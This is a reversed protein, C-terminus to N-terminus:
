NLVDLSPSEPEGIPNGLASVGTCALGPWLTRGRQNGQDGQVRRTGRTRPSRSALKQPPFVVELDHLYHSPETALINVSPLLLVCVPCMGVAVLLM